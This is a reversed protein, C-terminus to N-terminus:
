QDRRYAWKSLVAGEQREACEECLYQRPWPSKDSKRHSAGLLMEGTHPTVRLRPEDAQVVYKCVDCKEKIGTLSWACTRGNKPSTFPEGWAPKM